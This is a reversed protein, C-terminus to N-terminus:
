CKIGTWWKIAPCFVTGCLKAKMDGIEKELKDVANQLSENERQMQATYVRWEQEQVMAEGRFDDMGKSLSGLKQRLEELKERQVVAEGDRSTLEITLAECKGEMEASRAKWEELEKAGLEAEDKARELDNILSEQKEELQTIQRKSAELAQERVTLMNRTAELDLAIKEGWKPPNEEEAAGNSRRRREWLKRQLPNTEETSPGTMTKSRWLLRRNPATSTSVASRISGNTSATDSANGEITNDESISALSSRRKIIPMWKPTIPM